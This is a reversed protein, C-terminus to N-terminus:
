LNREEQVWTDASGGTVGYCADACARMGYCFEVAASRCRSRLSGTALSTSYFDNGCVIAILFRLRQPVVSVLTSLLEAYSAAWKEKSKM